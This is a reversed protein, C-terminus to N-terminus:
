NNTKQRNLILVLKLVVTHKYGLQLLQNLVVLCCNRDFITILILCTEPVILMYTTRGFMDETRGFMDRTRDFLDRTRGVMDRTRGCMKRTRGFM